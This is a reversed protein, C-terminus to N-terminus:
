KWGKACSSTFTPKRGFISCRSDHIDRRKDNSLAVFGKENAVIAQIVSLKGTSEKHHPSLEIIHRGLSMLESGFGGNCGFIYGAIM